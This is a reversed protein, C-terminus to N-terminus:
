LDLYPNRLLIMAIVRQLVARLRLRLLPTSWLRFEWVRSGYAAKRMFGLVGQVELERFGAGAVGLNRKPPFVRQKRVSFAVDQNTM